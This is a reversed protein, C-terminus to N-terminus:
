GNKKSKIIRKHYEAIKKNYEELRRKDDESPEIYEITVKSFDITPLEVKDWDITGDPKLLLSKAKM